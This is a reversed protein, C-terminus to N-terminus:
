PPNGYPTDPGYGGGTLDGAPAQGVNPHTVYGDSERVVGVHGDLYAVHATANRHRWHVFGGYAGMNAAGGFGLDMGLYFPENFALPQGPTLGSMQIGDAFVVTTESHVVRAARKAATAGYPIYPCLFANLGYDAAHTAFTSVFNADDYPFDPCRLGTVIDGGFYPALFGEKVVLQRNTLPFADDSWGFWYYTAAQPPVMYSGALSYPMMLGHNNTVYASFATVMQHLNSKCVTARAATRAVSLAPLLLAMLIAIIAIVVCLEIVTFARARGTLGPRPSPPPPPVCM